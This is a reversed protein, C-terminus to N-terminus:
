ASHDASKHAWLVLWCAVCAALMVGVTTQWPLAEHAKSARESLGTATGRVVTLLGGGPWGAASKCTAGSM